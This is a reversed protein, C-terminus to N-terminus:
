STDQFFNAVLKFAMDRYIEITAAHELANEYAASPEPATGEPPVQALAAPPFIFSTILIGRLGSIMFGWLKM